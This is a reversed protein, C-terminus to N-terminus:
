SPGSGDKSDDESARPPGEPPETPDDARDAREAPPPASAERRSKGKKESGEERLRRIVGVMREVIEAPLLDSTDIEFYSADRTLPSDDRERDRGDREELEAIVQDLSTGRGAAVLERHRRESRVETNAELFFKYPTQPFVVTGIDRGELVAGGRRAFLRQLEVMKRRVVSHTSIQSSARSVEATRIRSGVPEGRLFVEAGGEGDARLDLDLEAVLGAVAAADSPDHGLELADLAVARYMAGTDLMPVRLRKALQRAVTSKGVGSPGDIAVILPDRSLEKDKSM